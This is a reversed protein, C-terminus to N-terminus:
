GDAALMKGAMGTLDLPECFFYVSPYKPGVTSIDIINCTM